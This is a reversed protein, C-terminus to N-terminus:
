QRVSSIKCQGDVINEPAKHWGKEKGCIVPLSALLLFVLVKILGYGDFVDQKFVM